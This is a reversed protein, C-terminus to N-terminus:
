MFEIIQYSVNVTNKNTSVSSIKINSTSVSILYVGSDYEYYSKTAGNLLVIVKSTDTISCDITTVGDINVTGRIIQRIVSGSMTIEGSEISYNVIESVQSETVYQTHTHDILSYGELDNFLHYVICDIMM